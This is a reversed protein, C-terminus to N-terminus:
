GLKALNSIWLICLNNPNSINRRTFARPRAYKHIIFPPLKTSGDANTTLSITIREKQLKKGSLRKTALTCNPELMCMILVVCQSAIKKILRVM